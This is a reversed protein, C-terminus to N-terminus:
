EIVEEHDDEFTVKLSNVYLEVLKEKENVNDCEVNIDKLSDKLYKITKGEAFEKLLINYEKGIERCLKHALEHKEYLERYSNIWTKPVRTFGEKELYKDIIKNIM